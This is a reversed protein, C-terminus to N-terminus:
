GAFDLGFAKHIIVLFDPALIGLRKVALTEINNQAPSSLIQSFVFGANITRFWSPAYRRAFTFSSTLFRLKFDCISM